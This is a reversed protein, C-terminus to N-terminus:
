MRIVGNYKRCKQATIVDYCWQKNYCSWMDKGSILAIPLIMQLFYFHPKVM